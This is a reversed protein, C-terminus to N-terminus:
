LRAGAVDADKARWAGNGAAAIVNFDFPHVRLELNM